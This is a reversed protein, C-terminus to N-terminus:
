CQLELSEFFSLNHGHSTYIIQSSPVFFLNIALEREFILSLHSIWTSLSNLTNTVNGQGYFSTYEGTAAIAVEYDRFVAGVASNVAHAPQIRRVIKSENVLCRAAAAAALYTGSAYSVYEARAGPPAPQVAMLEAGDTLLAHLGQASWTFRLTLRPDDLGEGRYAQVEPAGVAEDRVVPAQAIRFRTLRGDPLPLALLPHEAGLRGTRQRSTRALVQQLSAENLRFLPAGAPLGQAAAESATRGGTVEWLGEDAAAAAAQATQAQVKFHRLWLLSGAALVLLASTALLLRLALRPQRSSVSSGSLMSSQKM